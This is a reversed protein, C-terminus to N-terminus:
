PLVLQVEEGNIRVLRVYTAVGLLLVVPLLVLAVTTTQPGFGTADAAVPAAAGYGRDPARTSPSAQRRNDTAEM